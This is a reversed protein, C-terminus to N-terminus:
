EKPIDDHREPEPHPAPTDAPLTYLLSPPPEAEALRIGRRFAAM